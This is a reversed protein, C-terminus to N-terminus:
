PAGALRRRFTPGAPNSATVGTFRDGRFWVPVRLTM